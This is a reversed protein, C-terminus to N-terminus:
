NAERLERARAEIPELLEAANPPRRLEVWDRAFALSELRYAHDILYALSPM